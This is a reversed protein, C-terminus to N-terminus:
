LLGNKRMYDLFSTYSQHADIYRNGAQTEAILQRYLRQSTEDNLDRCIEAGLNFTKLQEARWGDLAEIAKSQLHVLWEQPRMSTAYAAMNDPIEM